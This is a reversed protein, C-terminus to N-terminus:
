HNPQYHSRAVIQTLRIRRGSFTMQISLRSAMIPEEWKRDFALFSLFDNLKQLRKNVFSVDYAAFAVGKFLSM